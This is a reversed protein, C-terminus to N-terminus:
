QKAELAKWLSQQQPTIKFEAAKRGADLIQMLTRRQEISVLQRAIEPWDIILIAIVERSTASCQSPNILAPHLVVIQHYLSDKRPCESMMTNLNIRKM